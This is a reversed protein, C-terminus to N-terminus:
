SNMKMYYYEPSIGIVKNEIIECLLSFLKKKNELDHIVFSNTELQEHMMCKCNKGETLGYCYFINFPRYIDFDLLKLIELLNNNVHAVNLLDNKLKFLAFLQTYQPHSQNMLGSALLIVASFLLNSENTRLGILDNNMKDLIKIFLRDLIDYILPCAYLINLQECVQLIRKFNDKRLTLLVQFNDKTNLKEYEYSYNIQFNYVFKEDFLKEYIEGIDSLRKEPDVTLM